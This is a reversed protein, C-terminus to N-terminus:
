PRADVQVDFQVWGDEAHLTASEGRFGADQADETPYRAACSGEGPTPRGPDARAGPRAVDGRQHSEGPAPHGPGAAPLARLRDPRSRDGGAASKGEGGMAGSQGAPRRSRASQRHRLAPRHGRASLGRPARGIREAGPWPHEDAARADVGDGAPYMPFPPIFTLLVEAKESVTLAELTGGFPLIDTEDFGALM